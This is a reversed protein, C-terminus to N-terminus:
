ISTQGPTTASGPPLRTALLYPHALDSPDTPSILPAFLAILVIVTLVVFGAVAIRSAFFDAVFRRFPTEAPAAKVPAALPSEVTATMGQHGAAPRPSRAGLLPHRGGSQHHHVHISRFLTPYPFLPDTRTSTPPRLIM